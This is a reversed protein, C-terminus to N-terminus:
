LLNFLILNFNNWDAEIKQNLIDRYAIYINLGRAM